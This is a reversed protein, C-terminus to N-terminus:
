SCIGIYESNGGSQSICSFSNCHYINKYTGWSLGPPSKTLKSERCPIHPTREVLATIVRGLTLLLQNINGAERARKGVAGSRGINESGALDVLNLKGTKVLAEGDVTTEKMHIKVSFVSHSRSSYANMLTAVATRKAAGKELTQYVQDKNHVTIEELGKIIVGRKNRPGDFMQLRDSADSSPNLLDFVEENYIELLLM